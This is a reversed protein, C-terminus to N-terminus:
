CCLASEADVSRPEWTTAGGQGIKRRMILERGGIEKYLHVTEIEYGLVQGFLDVLTSTSSSATSLLPPPIFSVDWGLAHAQLLSTFLGMFRPTAHFELKGNFPFPRFPKPGAAVSLTVSSLGSPGEFTIRAQDKSQQEIRSARYGLLGVQDNPEVMSPSGLEGLGAAETQRSLIGWAQLPAHSLRPHLTLFLRALQGPTLREPPPFTSVLQRLKLLATQPFPPVDFKSVAEIANRTESSYQTTLIIERVKEPISSPSSTGASMAKALALSSGVPDVFRAQFRSRFPPDLPYGPYPPVPAAIAIVRFSPAAPIFVKDRTSQNANAEQM